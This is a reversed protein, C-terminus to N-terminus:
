VCVRARAGFDAPCSRVGVRPLPCVKMGRPTQGRERGVARRAGDGHHARPVPRVRSRAQPRQGLGPRCVGRRAAGRQVYFQRRVLPTSLTSFFVLVGQPAAGVNAATANVTVDAVLGAARPQALASANGAAGATSEASSNGSSCAGSSGLLSLSLSLSSSCPLSLSCFPRIDFGPCALRQQPVSTAHM